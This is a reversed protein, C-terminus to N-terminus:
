PKEKISAKRYKCVKCENKTHIDIKSKIIGTVTLCLKFLSAVRDGSNGSHGSLVQHSIM